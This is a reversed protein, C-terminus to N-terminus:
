AVAFAPRAMFRLIKAGGAPPAAPAAAPAPANAANKALAADVAAMIRSEFDAPVAEVAVSLVLNRNGRLRGLRETCAECTKAHETLAARAEDDLERESGESYLADIECNQFTSCDIVADGSREHTNKSNRSRRRCASSRM